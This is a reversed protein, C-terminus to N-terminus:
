SVWFCCGNDEMKTVPAPEEIEVEEGKGKSKGPIM